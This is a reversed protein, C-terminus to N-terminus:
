ISKFEGGIADAFLPHYAIPEFNIQTGWKDFALMTGQGGGSGDSYDGFLFSEGAEYVADWGLSDRSPSPRSDSIIYIDSNFRLTSNNSLFYQVTMETGDGYMRVFVDSAVDTLTVAIDTPYKAYVTIEPVLSYASVRLPVSGAALSLIALILFLHMIRKLM